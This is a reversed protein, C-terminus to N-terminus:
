YEIYFRKYRTSEFSLLQYLFIHLSHIVITITSKNEWHWDMWGVSQHIWKRQPWSSEVYITPRNKQPEQYYEIGM